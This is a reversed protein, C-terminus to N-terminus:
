GRGGAPRHPVEARGRRRRIEGSRRREFHPRSRRLRAGHRRLYEAGARAAQQANEGAGGARRDRVRGRFGVRQEAARLVVVEVFPPPEKTERRPLELADAMWALSLAGGEFSITQLSEVTKLESRKVRLIRVVGAPPVAFTQGGVAVLVAQFTALTMPLVIRFTTGANKVTEIAIQGGLKDVKERVIAMGLGRGSIETLIPSTSVGSQFILALAAAESLQAAEVQTTVGSKVAARASEPPTSGPAMM